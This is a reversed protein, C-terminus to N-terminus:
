PDVLLLPDREKRGKVMLTQEVPCVAIIVEMREPCGQLQMNSTDPKRNATEHSLLHECTAWDKGLINPSAQKFCKGWSLMDLGSTGLSHCLNTHSSLPVRLEKSWAMEFAAQHQAM